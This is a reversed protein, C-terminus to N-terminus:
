GTTSPIARLRWAEYGGLLDSVDGAGHRRLVSAAIMSRYGGGCYVVVPRAADVEHLRSTLQALPITLAGPVTGNAVEGPGRVDVVTVDMGSALREALEAATLRSSRETLEPRELFARVPTRLSGVVGDFGVRALRVTAEHAHADDDAVLVVATDPAIVDGAYEAFRGELGVNISARLHGAAYDGAARTDLVVAGDRERALVDDLSLPAVAAQEDLLPHAQHNRAADFAFYAPPPPQGETVMAAFAGEEMPQLAYNRRRQEGITSSTETSLSRGCSSGAGHAPYVRTADPLTLLRDHLSHYLSRAMADPTMGATALLDPRGVDGIFLTDGTLVASPETDDRHEYVVLSISEPTHGPTAWVVIQVDGLDIRDGDRLTEIPFDAQAPAGYCIDAGTAASLELHGSLFDAHFHTEVVKEISMDHADAAALYASVDRQPDVVIARGTTEDGVLYSAHSLCALFHQELIM